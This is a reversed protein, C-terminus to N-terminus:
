PSNNVLLPPFLFVLALLVPVIGVGIEFLYQGMKIKNTKEENLYHNNRICLLYEKIMVNQFKTINNDDKYKNLQEERFNGDKDFFNNGLFSYRYRKIRLAQVLYIIAAMNLSLALFLLTELLPLYYYTKDIREILFSGFGFILPIIIGCVTILYSSKSEISNKLELQTDYQRRLEELFLDKSPSTLDDDRKSDGSPKAVCIKYTDQIFPFINNRLFFGSIEEDASAITSSPKSPGPPYSDVTTHYSSDFLM